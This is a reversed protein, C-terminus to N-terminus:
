LMYLLLVYANILGHVIVCHATKAKFRFRMWCLAISVIFAMLMVSKHAVAFLLSVSISALVPGIWDAVSSLLLHRLLKEEFWPTVVVLGFIPIVTKWDREFDSTHSTWLWFGVTWLVCLSATFLMIVLAARAGWGLVSPPEPFLLTLAVCVVLEILLDFHSLGFEESVTTAVMYFITAVVFGAFYHDRRLM